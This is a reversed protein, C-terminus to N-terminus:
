LLGYVTRSLVQSFNVVLASGTMEGFNIMDLLWGTSSIGSVMMLVIDEFSRPIVNKGENIPSICVDLARFQHNSLEYPFGYDVCQEM